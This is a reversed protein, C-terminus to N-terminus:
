SCKSGAVPSLGSPMEAAAIQMEVNLCTQGKSSVLAQPPGPHQSSACAAVWPTLLPTAPTRSPRQQIRLGACSQCGLLRNRGRHWPSCGNECMLAPGATDHQCARKSLVASPPIESKMSIMAAVIAKSMALQPCSSLPGQATAPRQQINNPDALLEFSRVGLPTVAPCLWAMM